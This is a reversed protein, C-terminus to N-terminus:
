VSILEGSVVRANEIMLTLRGARRKEDYLASALGRELYANGFNSVTKPGLNPIQTIQSFVHGVDVCNWIVARSVPFV